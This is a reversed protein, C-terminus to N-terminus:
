QIQTVPQGFVASNYNEICQNALFGPIELPHIDDAICARAHWEIVVSSVWLFM